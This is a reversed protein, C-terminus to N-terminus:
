RLAAVLREVMEPIPLPPNEDLNWGTFVAVVEEDPLVILRQGGYGNGVWAFKSKGPGYPFLWWKLGYKVDDKVTAVPAVSQTIWEESVLRQGEWMGRRLMLFGIKALDKAELYVGGETDPLGLPTRKWYYETIGLPKFLNAEAYQALDKGGTGKVFIEALLETAGSNYVWTSGPEAAMPRDLVYQVWDRSREMMAANNHSLDTYTASSEDWNVGATMTLLHRVTMRRKRDDLNAIKRDPFFAVVATDITRFDGKAIAIGFIVSTISKSVSQLTHLRTGKYYPHWAPDYYNYIGAVTDRGAYAKAYDHTYNAEYVLKGHRTVFMGDVYKYKLAAFDHDLAALSASDIGADAARAIPWAKTPWEPPKPAPQSACATALVLLAPLPLRM